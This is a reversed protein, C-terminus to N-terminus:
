QTKEVDSVVQQLIMWFLIKNLIKKAKYKGLFNAANSHGFSISPFLEPSFLAAVFFFVHKVTEFFCHLCM